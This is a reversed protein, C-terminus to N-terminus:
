VGATECLRGFSFGTYSTGSYKFFIDHKRVVLFIDHNRAWFSVALGDSKSYVALDSTKKTITQYNKRGVMM